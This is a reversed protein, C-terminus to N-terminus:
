LRSWRLIGYGYYFNRCRSTEPHMHGVHVRALKAVQSMREKVSPYDLDPLALAKITSGTVIIADSRIETSNFMVIPGESAISVLEDSRPPLQFGEFGPLQRISALKTALCQAAEERKQREHLPPLDLGEIGMGVRTPPSDIVLRLKHFEDFVGPHKCRLDTVDSRCDIAHGMIVGRGFELLRVCHAAEEGAQFGISVADAAIQTHNVVRNSLFFQLDDRSLHRSHIMPLAKVVDALISSSEQWMRREALLKSARLAGRIRTITSTLHCHWVEYSTRLIYHFYKPLPNMQFKIYLLSGLMDLFLTRNGEAPHLVKLAEELYKIAKELNQSGNPAICKMFWMMGILGKGEKGLIDDAPIAADLEEVMTLLLEFRGMGELQQDTIWLAEILMKIRDLRHPSNIPTAAVVQGLLVKAEEADGMTGLRLYRRLLLFSVYHLAHIRAGSAADAASAAERYWYIGETLDDLAGWEEYRIAFIHGRTLLLGERGLGQDGDLAEQNLSIAQGIDEVTKTQRYRIALYYSLKGLAVARESGHQAVAEVAARAFKIAQNIDELSGSRMWKTFHSGGLRHLAYLRDIYNDPFANALEESYKTFINLDSIEKLWIYREHTWDALKQLTPKQLKGIDGSTLANRFCEIAKGLDERPGPYGEGVKPLGNSRNLLDARSVSQISFRTFADESMGVTQVIPNLHINIKYRNYFMDGLMLLAAVRTCTPHNFLAATHAKEMWEIAHELDVLSGIWQYRTYYMQGLNFLMLSHDPYEPTTIDIAETALRIVEEFGDPLYKRYGKAELASDLLMQTRQPTGGPLPYSIIDQAIDIVLDLCSIETAGTLMSNLAESPTLWGMEAGCSQNQKNRLRVLLLSFASQVYNDQESLAAEEAIAVASDLYDHDGTSLFTDHLEQMTAVTEVIRAPLGPHQLDEPERTVLTNAKTIGFFLFYAKGTVWGVM